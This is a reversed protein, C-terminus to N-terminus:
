SLARCREVLQKLRELNGLAKGAIDLVPPLPSEGLTVKCTLDGPQGGIGLDEDRALELLRTVLGARTRVKTIASYQEAGRLGARPQCRCMFVPALPAAHNLLFGTKSLEAYLEPLTLDNVANRVADMKV